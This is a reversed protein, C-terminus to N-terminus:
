YAAQANNVEGDQGVVTGFATVTGLTMGGWAPAGVIPHKYVFPPGTRLSIRRPKLKDPLRSTGVAAPTNGVAAALVTDQEFAYIASGDDNDYEYFAKPM